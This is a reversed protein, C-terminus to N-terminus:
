KYAGAQMSVNNIYYYVLLPMALLLAPTKLAMLTTGFIAIFSFLRTPFNNRRNIAERAALAILFLASLGFAFFGFIGYRYLVIEAGYASVQNLDDINALGFYNGFIYSFNIFGTDMKGEFETLKDNPLFTLIYKILPTIYGSILISFLIWIFICLKYSSKFFVVSFLGLVLCTFLVLFGWGSNASIFSATLVILLVNRYPIKKDLIVLFILPFVIEALNSPELFILTMRQYNVAPNFALVAYNLLLSWEFDMRLERLIFPNNESIFINDIQWNLRDLVGVWYLLIVVWALLLLFSIFLIYSRIVILYNVKSLLKVLFIIFILLLIDRIATVNQTSIYSLILGAMLFGYFLNETNIFNSKEIYIFKKYLLILFLAIIIYVIYSFRTDIIFLEFLIPSYPYTLVLALIFAIVLLGVNIGVTPNKNFTQNSM